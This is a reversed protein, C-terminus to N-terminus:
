DLINVMGEPILFINYILWFKGFHKTNPLLDRHLLHIDEGLKSM